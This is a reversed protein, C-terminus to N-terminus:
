GNELGKAGDEGEREKDSLSADPEVCNSCILFSKL